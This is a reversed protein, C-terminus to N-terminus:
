GLNSSIRCPLKRKWKNQNSNALKEKNDLKSVSSLQKFWYAILDFRMVESNKLTETVGFMIKRFDSIIYSHNLWAQSSKSIPYAM